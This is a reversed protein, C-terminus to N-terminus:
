RKVGNAANMERVLTVRVFESTSTYGRQTAVADLRAREAPTLKVEIRATRRDTDVM